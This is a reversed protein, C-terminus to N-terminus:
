ARGPVVFAANHFPVFRFFTDRLTCHLTGRRLQPKFPSTPRPVYRGACARGTPSAVTEHSTIYHLPNTPRRVARARKAPGERTRRRRKRGGGKEGGGERWRRGSSERRREVPSM